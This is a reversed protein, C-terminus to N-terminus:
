AVQGPLQQDNVNGGVAPAPAALCWPLLTEEAAVAVIVGQQSFSSILEEGLL